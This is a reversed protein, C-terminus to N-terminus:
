LDEIEIDTEDDHAFGKKREQSVIKAYKLDESGEFGISFTKLPPKNLKKLERQVLAAILSSDLGGSLLAALPRETMM